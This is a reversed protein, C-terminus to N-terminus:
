GLPVKLLNAHHLFSIPYVYVGKAGKSLADQIKDRHQSWKRLNRDEALRRSIYKSIDQDIENNQMEIEQGRCPDLSMRIDPEDRSTVLLHLGACSWGRITELVDLVHERADNPKKPAEDLADILLYVHDFRQVIRQLYDLMTRPPMTGPQYTEYMDTLDERAGSLQTSLQLIVAKLFASCDQKSKDNFTFYFFAIGVVGNLRSNQRYAHLIATSCLVSKGCGAFGYLWLFSKDEELWKQFVSAKILWSGTGPHRKAVANNHDVTADPAKLWSVIEASIQNSKIMQLLSKADVLDDQVKKSDRLNLCQLALQVNDEIAAINERLKELTSKQFPYTVLKGAKKIKARVGSAPENFLKMEHQLEHILGLCGNITSETQQVMEQEELKSCRSSLTDNLSKFIMELGSLERLVRAVDSDQDKFATYFKVLEGTVKLGLAIIGVASGAVSFPDAM